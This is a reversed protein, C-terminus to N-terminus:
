RCHTSATPLMRRSWPGLEQLKVRIAPPLMAARIVIVIDTVTALSFKKLPLGQIGNRAVLCIQGSGTPQRVCADFRHLLAYLNFHIRRKFIRVGRRERPRVLSEEAHESLRRYLWM